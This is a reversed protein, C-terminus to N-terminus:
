TTALVVLAFLASMVQNTTDQLANAATRIQILLRSVLAVVNTISQTCVPQAIKAALFTEAEM